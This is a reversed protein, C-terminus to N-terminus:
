DPYKQFIISGCAKCHSADRDHGSLGCNPCIVSRKNNELISLMHVLKGVQWPVLGMTCFIMFVTLWRGLESSPTIDGYGVTSITIMTFYLADGYSSISAQPNTSEVYYFFGSFIFVITIVTFAVRIVQLSLINIRGFFFIGNKLYRGFRLIRIVKLSRLFGMSQVPLFAPLISVIDIISYFSFCYHWKRPARYFRLLYEASFLFAFGLELYDILAQTHPDTVYTEWVFLACALLNASLLLFETIRAGISDIDHLQKGLYKAIYKFKL